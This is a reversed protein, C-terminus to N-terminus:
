NSVRKLVAANSRDQRDMWVRIEDGALEGTFGETQDGLMVKFTFTNKSVKGETINATQGNLTLTGALATETATLNLVLQSRLNKTQGQWKGTVSTQARGISGFM